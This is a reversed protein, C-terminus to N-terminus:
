FRNKMSELADQIVKEISQANWDHTERFGLVFTGDGHMELGFESVQSPNAQRLSNGLLIMYHLGQPLGDFGGRTYVALFMDKRQRVAVIENPRHLDGRVFHLVRDDGSTAIIGRSIRFNSSLLMTIFDPLVYAPIDTRSVTVSSYAEPVSPSSFTFISRLMEGSISVQTVGERPTYTKLFDDIPTNQAKVNMMVTMIAIALLIFYQKKMPNKILNNNYKKM